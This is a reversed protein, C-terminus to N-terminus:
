RWDIERKGFSGKGGGATVGCRGLGEEEEAEEEEMFRPLKSM